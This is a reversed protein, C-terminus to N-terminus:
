AVPTMEEAFMEQALRRSEEGSIAPAITIEFLDDWAALVALIPAMTDAEFLAIVNPSPISLVYEAVPHLGEPFEWQM